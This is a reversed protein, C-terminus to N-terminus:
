RSSVQVDWFRDATWPEHIFRVFDKGNYKYLRQADWHFHSALLPDKVLDMPLEWLDRCSFEFDLTENKYEVPVLM